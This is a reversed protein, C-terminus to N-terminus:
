QKCILTIPPLTLANSVHGARDRIQIKYVVTDRLFDPAVSPNCPPLPIGNIPPPICCTPPIQIYIEGSIGNGAGQYEVLPLSLTDGSGDRTDIVSIDRGNEDFGLDGDGDTFGLTVRLTDGADLSSQLQFNKSLSSFTLVPEDPYDPPKVCFQLGVSAAFLFLFLYQLNKM